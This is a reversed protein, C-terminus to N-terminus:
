PSTGWILPFYLLCVTSQSTLLVLGSFFGKWNPDQGPDLNPRASESDSALIRSGDAQEPISMASTCNVRCPLQVDSAVESCIQVSQQM